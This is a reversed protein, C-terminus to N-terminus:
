FRYVLGLMVSNSHWRVENLRTTLVTGDAKYVKDKGADTDLHIYNLALSMHMHRAIRILWLLQASFGNGKADHEFSVPHQLNDRLNWDAEASYDALVFYKLSLEWAMPPPAKFSSAMEHRLDCGVWLNRWTATYLSSLSSSLPGVPPTDGDPDNSIVQQGNTIRFSQRHVSIGAMPSIFTRHRPFTFPYGIGATVDWLHDGNTECVSRSYEQTRNDGHYDSDQLSGSEIWAFNVQGRGYFHSGVRTRGNLSLQHSLVDSWTLESLINPHQGSPSGAISWRMRDFRVGAALGLELSLPQSGASGRYLHFHSAPVVNTNASGDPLAAEAGGNGALIHFAFLFCFCFSTGSISRAM